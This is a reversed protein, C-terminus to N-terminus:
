NIAHKEKLYNHEQMKEKATLINTMQGDHIGIIVNVDNLIQPASCQNFLRKYYDLDLLWTMNEDFFLSLGNRITLVSPSGIHNDTDGIAFTPFHPVQANEAKCATVLWDGTFNEVIEKLANKHALFDDMYLIKIMDGLCYRIAANTNQAMGKIEYYTHKINLDSYELKCIDKINSGESNDCVVVEFDKFSQMAISDLCRRLLFAYNKMEYVPIAISIKM